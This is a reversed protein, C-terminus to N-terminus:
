RELSVITEVHYTQPFFDFAIVRSLTYGQNTLVRLDRAMTTPDCSVYTIRKPNIQAISGIAEAAGVRPPDLLILDPQLQEVRTAFRRLWLEVPNLEVTANRLQNELLNERAYRVARSNSEVAHVHAFKHALPLTFLGVGAYLDVALEGSEGEIVTNVFDDLLLNNSQFFTSPPFRYVYGNVSRLVESKFLEGKPAVPFGIQDLPPDMGVGQDGSSLDITSLSPWKQIRNEKFSSRITALSTNLSPQLIPCEEIDCVSHSSTRNFGIALDGKRQEVKLRARSRYGFEAASRIEIPHPWDIRGIRALSDHIFGEKAVLQAAYNLHQLQCGGCEGYYKCPPNRRETSPVLIDEIMARAYSKRKETIRIRVRENPAAGHIFITMGQYHAIAEGGYALRETTVEIVDDPHLTQTMCCRYCTGKKM